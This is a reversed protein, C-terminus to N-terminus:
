TGPPPPPPPDRGPGFCLGGGGWGLAEPVFGLKKKLGQRFLLFFGVQPTAMRCAVSPPPCM